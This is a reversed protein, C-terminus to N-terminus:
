NYRLNPNTGSIRLSISRATQPRTIRDVRGSSPQHLGKLAALTCDNIGDKEPHRITVEKSIPITIRHFDFVKGQLNGVRDRHGVPILLMETTAYLPAAARRGV